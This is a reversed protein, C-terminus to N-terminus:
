QNSGQTPKILNEPHYLSGAITRAYKGSILRNLQKDNLIVTGGFVTKVKHM